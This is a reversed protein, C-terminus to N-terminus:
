EKTAALFDKRIRAIKKNPDTTSGYDAAIVLNSAVRYDLGLKRAASSWQWNTYFGYGQDYTVATVPCCQHQLGEPASKNIVRILNRDPMEVAVWGKQFLGRYAEIFAAYDM